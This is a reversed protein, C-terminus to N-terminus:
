KKVGDKSLKNITKIVDKPTKVPIVGEISQWRGMVIVPRDIKKALAIESLTGYKGSVAVVIDGNLVVLFNRMEGLGNAIPYTIYKNAEKIDRGPLIGITVGGVMAVGQAVAEMVGGRGGCIVLHGEKALLRGLALAENYITPCCEGAGIVSIRM